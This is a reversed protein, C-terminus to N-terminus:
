KPWRSAGQQASRVIQEPLIPTSNFEAGFPRLADAVANAIAVPPAIAGGEGLGKVGLPNLPSPSHLHVLAIDPVDSATPALYDMLSGTLLQGEEDYAFREFLGGGVGQVTGGIIQGEVLMPNVVVGCDHAVAYRDLRVGGTGIDVEVIVAHVAYSWTVTPPEFYYTDELGADIGAPRGHDWGPRAAQAVKALPVAMDPVGIVGVTGNRLELDQPGCELLNAAIAFVKERLRDSAHHIAASLTVTSRSAVTGFGMPIAATDALTVVVDDIDVQWADAVVQAFITEMGQGQPCAGGAVYIKGSPEIRVTAGEFPGAGTGETYCGIGLGLHRGQARAAKQRERFAALGGVAALAKDLAGAYDGGDYVIPEGDRYVIGLKYPMEDPRIMNRRRVEAPEMGLAGAVLDMARETALAAEPRGAGRYPANPVKNTAVVRAEAAFNDIRYPGMLHAITNYTVGSGIPNFAGSDALFRDRFALIRGTDDFGIEVDHIQDRSHCSCMLHEHRDEIWKVPRGIERALFPILLDEPYVHGKIGFGGGVDLAVCRVRAEPMGLTAAVERRVWHVVQTSSWTTLSQTRRDYESVVGRCEIPLAAYREHHFRRALRHPAQALAGAADGKAASLEAILNTGFQEHVIAAGPALAAEPDIVAPLPDFEAEILAAADEAAYRSEAVVVAYAEGVHRVKDAALLAQQPNLIHHKVTTRWKGPLAVQHDPVPPLLQALQMGSLVYAVGPAAAARSLDVSRIRAHALPSRVFAAHLMRPLVLDAVYQGEGLLLRRDERRLMPRGVFPARPAAM